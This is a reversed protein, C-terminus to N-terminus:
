NIDEYDVYEGISNSVKKSTKDSDTTKVYVKGEKQKEQQATNQTNRQGGFNTYTYYGNGGMGGNKNLNKLKRAIYWRLLYPLLKAFIYSFLVICILVTLFM